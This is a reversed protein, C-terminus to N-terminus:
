LDDDQRVDRAIEILEHDETSSGASIISTKAKGTAPTSMVSSSAPNMWDVLLQMGMRVARMEDLMQQQLDHDDSFRAPNGEEDVLTVVQMLVTAVTGDPQLVSAVINRIKKGTSDAAVQVLGETSM